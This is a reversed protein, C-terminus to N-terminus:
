TVGFGLLIIGLQLLYKSVFDIGKECLTEAYLFHLIMGLLLAFLITPGGYNNSLFKASIGVLLSVLVGPFISKINELISM